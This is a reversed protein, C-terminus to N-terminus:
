DQIYDVIVRRLTGYKKELKADIYTFDDKFIFDNPDTLMYVGDLRNNRNKLFFVHLVIGAIRYQRLIYAATTTKDHPLWSKETHTPVAVRHGYLAKVKEIDDGWQLQQWGRVDKQAAVASGTSFCTLLLLLILPMHKYHM